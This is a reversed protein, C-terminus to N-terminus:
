MSGYETRYCVSYQSSGSDSTISLLSPTAPDTMSCLLCFFVQIASNFFFIICIACIDRLVVVEIKLHFIFM